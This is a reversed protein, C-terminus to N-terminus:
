SDNSAVGETGNDDDVVQNDNEAIGDNAVLGLTSQPLAGDAFSQAAQKFDLAVLGADSAVVTATPLEEHHTWYVEGSDGVRVDGIHLHEVGSLASGELVVLVVRVAGGFETDELVHGDSDTLKYDEGFDLTTHEHVSALRLIRRRVASTIKMQEVGKSNAPLKVPLVLTGNIVGVRHRGGKPRVTEAGMEQLEAASERAFALWVTAGYPENTPLRSGAKAEYGDTQATTAARALAAAVGACDNGFAREMWLSPQFESSSM